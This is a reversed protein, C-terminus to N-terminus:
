TYAILEKERLYALNKNEQYKETQHNENQGKPKLLWMSNNVEKM